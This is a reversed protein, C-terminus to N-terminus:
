RAGPRQAGADLDALTAEFLAVAKRQMAELEALDAPLALAEVADRLDPPLDRDLYRPGFDYRDPAHRMRLLEILPALTMRQYLAAAEAPMGRLVARSVLVQLMPFQERLLALRAAMKAEHARRDFEALRALGDRDFLVLPRGHREAELFRGPTSEEMVVVDLDHCPAAGTVRLFEQHHGHWAPEPMRWSHSVPGLKEVIARVAAFCDQWRGDEVIMVLDIDSWEDTRGSTDSGGLWAARVYDIRELGESLTDILQQRSIRAQDM